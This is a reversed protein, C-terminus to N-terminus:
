RSRPRSFSSCEWLLLICCIATARIMQSHTEEQRLFRNRNGFVFLHAVQVQGSLFMIEGAVWISMVVRTAQLAGEVRMPM